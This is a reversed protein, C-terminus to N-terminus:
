FFGPAVGFVVGSRLVSHVIPFKPKTIEGTPEEPSLSLSFSLPPYSGESEM